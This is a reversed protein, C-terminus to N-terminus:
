SSRKRFEVNRSRGTGVLMRGDGPFLLSYGASCLDEDVAQVTRDPAWRRRLVLGDDRPELTWSVGLEDSEYTGAFQHISGPTQTIESFVATSEPHTTRATLTRAGSGDTGLELEPLGPFGVRHDGAGELELRVGGVQMFLKEDESELRYHHPTGALRYLGVWADPSPEIPTSDLSAGLREGVCLDAIGQAVKQSNFGASNSLVAVAFELQPLRMLMARYGALGGGHQVSREGRYQDVGLGFAYTLARGDSLRGPTQVLELVADPFVGGYFAADWLALDEVTSYLGGDGVTEIRAECLRYGDDSPEYGRARRAILRRHDDNFESDRMGLPDFILEHAADRFTCGMARGVAMTLLMYGTNCYSHDTGTEFNLARQRELLDVVSAQDILDVFRRGAMDLLDFKERLGSTHHVLHRLTITTGFEPVEPVWKRIDDDLDLVGRHAALAVCMATFQKAVSGVYFRTRPTIAIGQELDAMGYGKSYVINGRQLVALACGPSSTSDWASLLADVQDIPIEIDSSM